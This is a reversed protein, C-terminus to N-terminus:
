DAHPPEPKLATAIAENVAAKIALPITVTRTTVVVDEYGAPRASTQFSCTYCYFRRDAQMVPDPIKCVCQQDSM